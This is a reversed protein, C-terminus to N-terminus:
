AITREVIEVCIDVDAVTDRRHTVVILTRPLARVTATLQAVELSQWIREEAEPSWPSPHSFAVNERISAPALDAAQSVVGPQEWWWGPAHGLPVGNVLVTGSTPEVLGVLLDLLTSKGGGTPGVIGVFSGSPIRLDVSRLVVVPPGESPSPYAFSVDRFEIDSPTWTSGMPPGAAEPLLGDTTRVALRDREAVLEEILVQNSRIENVQLIFRNLIHEVYPLHLHGSLLRRSIRVSAMTSLRAGLYSVIVLLAARIFLIVILGIALTVLFLRLLSLIALSGVLELVAFGVSLVVLLFWWGLRPREDSLLRLLDRSLLLLAEWAAGSMM